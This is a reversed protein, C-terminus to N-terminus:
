SWRRGRPQPDTALVATLHQEYTPLDEATGAFVSVGDDAVLPRASPTRHFRNLCL